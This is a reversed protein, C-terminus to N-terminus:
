RVTRYINLARDGRLARDRCDGTADARMPHTAVAAALLLWHCVNVHWAGMRRLGAHATLHTLHGDEAARVGCRAGLMYAHAVCSSCDM